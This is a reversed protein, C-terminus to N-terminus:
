RRMSCRRRPPAAACARWRRCSRSRSASPRAGGRAAGAGSGGGCPHRPLLRVAQDLLSPHALARGAGRDAGGSRGAERAYTPLFGGWPARLCGGARDHGAGCTREGAARGGGRPGPHLRKSMAGDGLFAWTGSAFSLAIGLAHAATEADLRRLRAAAITAGFVGCTGTSHWGANNHADYEGAAEMVRRGLDYGAVVAAVVDADTAEPAVALAALVAPVVVAGSHDCGSTDDLEVAHAATGNVLAAPVPPVREARAWLVAEGPGGAMSRRPGACPWRRRSGRRGGTRRGLTDLMHRRVAHVAEAPLFEAALDTYFAALEQTTTM